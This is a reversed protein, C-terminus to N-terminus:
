YSRTNAPAAKSTLLRCETDLYENPGTNFVIARQQYCFYVSVGEPFHGSIGAGIQYATQLIDKDIRFPDKIILDRNLRWIVELGEDEAYEMLKQLLTFGQRFPRNVKDSQWNPKLPRTVMAKAQLLTELDGKPEDLFVVNNRIKPGEEDEDEGQLNAYFRSLGEAAKNKQVIKEPENYSQVPKTPVDDIVPPAEKKADSSSEGGLSLILEHNTLLIYALTSLILAFIGNRIWFSM